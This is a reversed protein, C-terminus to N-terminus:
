EFSIYSENKMNNKKKTNKFLVFLFVCNDEKQTEIEFFLDCIDDFLCLILVFVLVLFVFHIKYFYYKM